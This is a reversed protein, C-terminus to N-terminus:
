PRSREGEENEREVYAALQALRESWFAEYREIWKAAAELPAPTLEYIRNRGARRARVLRAERLVRLHKAIAPRSSPFRRALEGATRRGRWLEELLRGR